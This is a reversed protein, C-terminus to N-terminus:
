GPAQRFSYCPLTSYRDLQPQCVWHLTHPLDADARDVILVRPFYFCGSFGLARRLSCSNRWPCIYQQARHQGTTINLRNSQSNPIAMRGREHTARHQAHNLGLLIPLAAGSDALSTITKGLRPSTGWQGKAQELGKAKPERLASDHVRFNRPWYKMTDTTGRVELVETLVRVPMGEENCSSPVTGLDSVGGM